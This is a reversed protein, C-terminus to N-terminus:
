LSILLKTAKEPSIWYALHVAVQPHGWFCVSHQNNENEPRAEFYILKDIPLHTEFSVNTLFKMTSKKSRWDSYKKRGLSCMQQLNIFNDVNYELSHVSPPSIAPMICNLLTELTSYNTQTEKVLLSVIEM